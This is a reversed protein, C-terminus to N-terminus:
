FCSPEPLMVRVSQVPLILQKERLHSRTYSLGYPSLPPPLSAAPSVFDGTRTLLTFGLADSHASEEPAPPQPLSRAGHASADCSPWPEQSSRQPTRPLRPASPPRPSGPATPSFGDSRLLSSRARITDGEGPTQSLRAKTNQTASTASSRSARRSDPWQTETPANGKYYVTRATSRQEGTCGRSGLSRCWPLSGLAQAVAHGRSFSFFFFLHFLLPAHRLQPLAAGRPAM